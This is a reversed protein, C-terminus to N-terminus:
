QAVEFDIISVSVYNDFKSNHQNWIKLFVDREGSCGQLQKKFLDALLRSGCRVADEDTIDFLCGSKVSKVSLKIRIHDNPLTFAPRWKFRYLKHSEPSFVYGHLVDVARDARYVIPFNPYFQCHDPSWAERCGVVDGVSLEHKMSVTARRLQTILGSRVGVSEWDHLNLFHKM